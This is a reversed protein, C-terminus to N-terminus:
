VAKVTTKTEINGSTAKSYPCILHADKALEEAEAQTVGPVKIDLAAAIKFNGDSEDKGISVNVTVSVEGTKIRKRMAALNFAGNYCAAYGAAFLQEPNTANGKGGMASPMHLDLDIIGDSSKVHGERGGQATATATYIAEM